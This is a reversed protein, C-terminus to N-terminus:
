CYMCFLAGLGPVSFVGVVLIVENEAVKSVDDGHEWWFTGCQM